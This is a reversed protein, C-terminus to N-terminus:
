RGAPRWWWFRYTRVVREGQSAEFEGAPELPGLRRELADRQPGLHDVTVVCCRSAPPSRTPTTSPRGPSASASTPPRAGTTGASSGSRSGTRPPWGPRVPSRARRPPGRAGASSTTSRSRARGARHPRPRPISSPIPVALLIALGALGVAIEGFGVGCRGAGRAGNGGRRRCACCSCPRSGARRPGTPCRVPRSAGGLPHLLRGGPPRLLRAGGPPRRRRALLARWAAAPRWRWCCRRSTASSAASRPSSGSRGLLEPGALGHSAQFAFSPWGHSRTGSRAHALGARGGPLRGALALPHRPAAARRPHRPARGPHGRGAHRGTLKSLAALGLFAGALLAWRPGRDLARQLAWLTGVWAFALPADPAILAAGASFLPAAQLGVRPRWRPGTAPAPASWRPPWPSRWRRSSRAGPAPGGAPHPGPRAAAPGHALGGGAPPRPLRAPPPAGLRRLVGRRQHAPRRAILVLRVATGVLIVWAARPRSRRAPREPSGRSSAAPAPHRRSRATLGVPELPPSRRSRSGSSGPPSAGDVLPSAVASATTPRPTSTPRSSRWRARAARVGPVIELDVM